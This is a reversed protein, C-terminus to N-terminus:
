DTTQEWAPTSVAERRLLLWGRIIIAQQSAFNNEDLLLHKTTGLGPNQLKSFKSLPLHLPTIDLLEKRDPFYVIAEKLFSGYLFELRISIPPVGTLKYVEAFHIANPKNARPSAIQSRKEWTSRDVVASTLGNNSRKGATKM